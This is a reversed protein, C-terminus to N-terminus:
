GAPWRSRDGDSPPEVDNRGDRGREFLERPVVFLSSHDSPVPPPDLAARHQMAGDPDSPVTLTRTREGYRLM